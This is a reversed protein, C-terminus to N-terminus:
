SSVGVCQDHIANPTGATADVKNGSAFCAEVVNERLRFPQRLGSDKSANRGPDGATKRTLFAMAPRLFRLETM